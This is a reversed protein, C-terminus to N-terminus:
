SVTVFWALANDCAFTKWKLLVGQCGFQGRILHLFKDSFVENVLSFSRDDALAQRRIEVVMVSRAPFRGAHITVFLHHNCMYLDIGSRCTVMSSITASPSLTIHRFMQRKVSVADHWFICNWPKTSHRKSSSFIASRQAVTV